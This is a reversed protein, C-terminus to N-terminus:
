DGVRPLVDAVPVQGVGVGALSLPVAVGPRFGVSGRYSPEAATADPDVYVEIQGDVLNVVWYTKIGARAYTRLKLGRDRDLTSDAVEVLLGVDAPYPHRNLFDRRGGRVVVLDPEPEGDSLTVPEQLRVHWGAPLLAVILDGLTGTTIAHTPNKPMKFVPVGEILEVPDDATLKGRDILDHWQEVTLRYIPENTYTARPPLPLTATSM